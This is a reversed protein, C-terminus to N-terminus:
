DMNYSSIIWWNSGDSFLTISSPGNMYVAGGTQITEDGFPAVVAWSEGQNQTTILVIPIKQLSPDPLTITLPDNNNIVVFGTGANLSTDSSVNVTAGTFFAGLAEVTVKHNYPSANTDVIPLIQDNAVSGISPSKSIKTGM